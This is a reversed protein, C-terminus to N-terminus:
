DPWDNLWYVSQGFPLGVLRGVSHGVSRSFWRGISRGHSQSVSRRVSRSASWGVVSASPKVWRGISRCVLQGVSQTVSLTLSRRVSRGVSFGVTAESFHPLLKKGITPPYVHLEIDNSSDVWGDWGPCSMNCSYTGEDNDTVNMITLIFAKKCKNDTTNLQIKYKETANLPLSKNHFYWRLHCGNGKVRQTNVLCKLSTNTFAAADKKASETDLNNDASGTNLVIEITLTKISFLLYLWSGKNRVGDPRRTLTRLLSLGYHRSNIETLRIYDIKQWPNLQQGYKLPTRLLSTDTLRSNVTNLLSLLSIFVSLTSYTYGREWSSITLPSYELREFHLKFLTNNVQRVM